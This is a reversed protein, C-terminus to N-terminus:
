NEIMGLDADTKIKEGMVSRIVMMKALIRVETRDFKNTLSRTRNFDSEALSKLTPGSMMMAGTLERPLGGGGFGSVQVEGDEIIEGGVDIFEAVKIFASITDNLNPIVSELIPFSRETEIQSYSSALIWMQMYDLYSKPTQNVFSEAQKMFQLALEKDGAKSVQVALGSLATMKANPDEINEIMKGAEAIAKSREEDSLKKTELKALTEFTEKEPSSKKKPAEVTVEVASKNSAVNAIEPSTRTKQRIQAARSPSVQEIYNLTEVDIGSNSGDMTMFDQAVLDSIDRLSQESFIPKQTPKNKIVKRNEVGLALIKKYLYNKEWTETDQTKLKGIIEEGFTAGAEADKEYIKKLLDIHNMKVGKALSKRGFELGKDANQEAIKQLIQLEFYSSMEDNQQKFKPNTIVSATDNYFSYALIADHESLANAIQQRVSMAKAFKRYMQAERSVGRAFPISYMGSNEEDFKVANLQADLQQLMQRFDNTVANFMVRAEKEDHFWMLGALESSFGIRNEPTRLNSIESSTERLFAVTDEKLKEEKEKKDTESTQSLATSTLLAIFLFNVLIKKLM